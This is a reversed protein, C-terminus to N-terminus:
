KTPVPTPIRALLQNLAQAVDNINAKQKLQEEVARDHVILTYVAFVSLMAIAISVVFYTFDRM